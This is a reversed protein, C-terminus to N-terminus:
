RIEKGKECHGKVAKKSMTYLIAM